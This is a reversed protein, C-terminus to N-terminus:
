QPVSRKLAWDDMPAARAFYWCHSSLYLQLPSSPRTYSIRSDTRGLLSHTLSLTPTTWLHPQDPNFLSMQHCQTNQTVTMTADLPRRSLPWVFGSAWFMHKSTTIFTKVTITDTILTLNGLIVRWRNNKTLLSKHINQTQTTRKRNIRKCIYQKKHKRRLFHLKWHRSSNKQWSEKHIPSWPQVLLSMDRSVRFGERSKKLGSWGCIHLPLYLILMTTFVM